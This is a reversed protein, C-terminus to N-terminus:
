NSFESYYLLYTIEIVKEFLRQLKSLITFFVINKGQYSVSRVRESQRLACILHKLFKIQIMKISYITCSQSNILYTIMSVQNCAVKKGRCVCPPESVTPSPLAPIEASSAAAALVALPLHRAKKRSRSRVLYWTFNGSLKKGDQGFDQACKQQFQM